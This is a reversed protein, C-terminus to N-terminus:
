RKSLAADIANTLERSEPEIASTFRGLIQGDRGILFKEFNWQIEGAFKPNTSKSTLFEFLPVKNRGLVQVKSFMDFQVGYNSKCFQQIDANTGPEQQGFDNSPFGLITLGQAAYTKHLNQLGEYQYTYGCESATNVILVVKGQYKSLNVPQGGINEMTFSLVDPVKGGTSQALALGAFAFWVVITANRM